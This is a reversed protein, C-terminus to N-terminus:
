FVIPISATGSKLVIPAQPGIAILLDPTLAILEAASAPLRDQSRAYRYEIILNQGDIWGHNRLGDFWASHLAPARGVQALFGLRRPTGQALSRGPLVFLATTGAIFERRKM